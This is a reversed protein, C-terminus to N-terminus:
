CGRKAYSTPSINRYSRATAQAESQGMPGEVVCFYGRTFNPFEDSSTNIVYGVGHNNAWRNAEARSTSCAMIAYWCAQALRIKGAEAAVPPAPQPELAAGTALTPTAIMTAAILLNRLM